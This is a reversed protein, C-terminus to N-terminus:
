KLRESRIQCRTSSRSGCRNVRTWSCSSTSLAIASPCASCARSIRASCMAVNSRSIRATSHAGRAAHGVVVHDDAAAGRSAHQGVAQALVRAGAHEHQLRSPRVVAPVDVDVHGRRQRERDAIAEVVPAVAGLRLRVHVAPADIVRAALHEAARAADVAHDELAAVREVVLAPRGVRPHLVPVVRVAQRVELLHLGAQGARVLPAAAVPREHQLATGDAVRQEPREEIGHLLGAVRQSRVDVAVPLLPERRKVPRQMAAPPQARRPRVQVGDHAAGIELDAGPRHHM